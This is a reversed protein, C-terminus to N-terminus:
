MKAMVIDRDEEAVQPEMWMVVEDDCKRAEVM